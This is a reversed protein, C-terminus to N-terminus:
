EARKAQERLRPATNSRNEMDCSHLAAGVTNSFAFFLNLFPVMEFLAAVVGFRDKNAIIKFSRLMVYATYAGRNQQVHDERQTKSMGKLQFYRDHAAPGTRKGQLVIFIFTGVVPIFNLPLYMVYRILANPTFKAFPKKVLKGLRAISDGGAKVQRGQAVLDKCQKSMLTGDFTDVLADEIFFSRSLINTITSSESLTLLAATFAAVPGSTFTMLAAQPLYAVIFM